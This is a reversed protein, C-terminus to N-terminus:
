FLYKWGAVTKPSLSSAISTMMYPSWFVSSEPRTLINIDGADQIRFKDSSFFTGCRLTHLSYIISHIVSIPPTAARRPPTAMESRRWDSRIADASGCMRIDGSQANGNKTTPVTLQLIRSM